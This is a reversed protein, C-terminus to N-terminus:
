CQEPPLARVINNNKTTKHQRVQKQEQQSTNHAFTNPTSSKWNIM